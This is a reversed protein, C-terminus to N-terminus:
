LALDLAEPKMERKGRSSSDSWLLSRRKLTNWNHAEIGLLRDIHLM